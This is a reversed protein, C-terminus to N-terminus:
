QRYFAAVKGVVDVVIGRDAGSHHLHEAGGPGGGLLGGWSRRVSSAIRRGREGAGTELSNQLNASSM